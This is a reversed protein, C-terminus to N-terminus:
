FYLSLSASATTAQTKRAVMATQNKLFLAAGVVALLSVTRAGHLIVARVLLSKATSLGIKKVHSALCIPVLHSATVRSIAQSTVSAIFM